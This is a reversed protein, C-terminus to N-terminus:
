FREKVPFLSILIYSEKEWKQKWERYRFFGLCMKNYFIWPLNMDPFLARRKKGFVLNCFALNKVKVKGFKSCIGYNQVTLNGFQWVNKGSFWTASHWIKSRWKELNPVFVMIKFQWIEFQWIKFQWIESSDFKRLTLNEFQWITSCEVFNRFSGV